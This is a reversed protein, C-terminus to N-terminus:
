RIANKKGSYSIKIEDKPRQIKQETGDIILVKNDKFYSNFEEIDKFERKPAYNSKQLVSKLVNLGVEQHRKANSGDMGTVLGLLDYTLGSKLSFLLFFLLESENGISSAITLSESNRESVTKGYLEKHSATFTPLLKYFRDKDLGTSSRWKRDTTLEDLRIKM